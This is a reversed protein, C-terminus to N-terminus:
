LGVEPGDLLARARMWNEGTLRRVGDALLDDVPVDANTIRMMTLGDFLASIQRATQEPDLGPHALGDRQRREVLRAFIRVSHETRDHFYAAAPSGPTASLGKLTLYLRLRREEVPGPAVARRLEDLDLRVDEEEVGAERVALEDARVMGAVLLHEKGAFHYLVTAEPVGSERAVLATTVRDHGHEDVLRLVADAIDARRKRSRAYPGRKASPTTDTM